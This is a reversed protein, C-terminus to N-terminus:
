ESGNSPVYPFYNSFSRLLLTPFKTEFASLYKRTILSIDSKVHNLLIDGWQDPSYRMINSYSNILLFHLCLEPLILPYFPNEIYWLRGRIDTYITAKIKSAELLPVTVCTKGHRETHTFGTFSNEIDIHSPRSEGDGIQFEWSAGRADSVTQLDLPFTRSLRGTVLNFYGRIEPVMSLLTGIGVTMRTNYFAMISDKNNQVISARKYIVKFTPFSTFLESFTGQKIDGGFQIKTDAPLYNLGHSGPLSELAYRLPNNLIVIAYAYATLSYFLSLPKVMFTGAYGSLYLERGQRMCNKLKNAEAANIGSNKESSVTRKRLRYLERIQETNEANELLELLSSSHNLEEIALIKLGNGEM